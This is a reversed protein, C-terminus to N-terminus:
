SPFDFGVPENASNVLYLINEEPKYLPHTGKAVTIFNQLGLDNLDLFSVSGPYAVFLHSEDKYWALNTANGINPINFRHYTQADTMPFIELGNNELAAIASGDDAVAIQKVNSALPQFTDSQADYLSLSGDQGLVALTNNNVWAIMTAPVAITSSGIVTTKSFMDYIVVATAGSAPRSRTWAIRSPSFAFSGYGVGAAATAVTAVTGQTTDFIFINQSTAAVIKTADYPDIMPTAAARPFFRSLNTSTTNSFDYLVYTGAATRWIINKFNVSSGVLTGHGITTGRWVIADAPTQMVIEGSAAVINKAATTALTLPTLPVLVAYKFETVLSPLVAANERWDAYGQETLTLAYNRPFLDTLFTGQSLFGTENAITKGDLAINATSPFSRVYIAGVKEARDTLFDFRWGQAYLVITAGLLFFLAVLVYFIINRIKKSM